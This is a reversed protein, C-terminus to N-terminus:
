PRVAYAIGDPGQGTGLYRRVTRAALDLEAVQDAGRLTVWATRSEPEFALGFPQGTGGGEAPTRVSALIRRAAADIVQVEDAFPNTVLVTRGDPAFGVRYPHGRTQLSDVVRWSAIDVAFVKGTSNSGLWVEREDPALGIAETQPGVALSRPEVGTALEVRSVTGPGINATYARRGDASLALMHSVRQGTPGVGTVTGETVDVLVVVQGVESTVAVTRHDPLFAIGHPRPYELAITRAVRLGALDVVTLSSGPQRTGYNTVVAWRGDGSAACEHPGTGTPLTALTRGSRLEIISVSSEDKNVVVLVPEPAPAAAVSLAVALAPFLPM